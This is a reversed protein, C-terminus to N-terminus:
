APLAESMRDLTQCVRACGLMSQKAVFLPTLGGFADNPHVLWDAARVGDGLVLTAMRVALKAREEPNSEALTGALRSM